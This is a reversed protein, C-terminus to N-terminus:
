KYKDDDEIVVSNKDYYIDYVYNLFTRLAEEFNPEEATALHYEEGFFWYHKEIFKQIHDVENANREKKILEKFDKIAQLRDTVLQLMSVVNKFEVKELLEAMDRREEPTPETVDELIKFLNNTEGSDM